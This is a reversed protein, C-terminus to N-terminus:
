KCQRLMAWHRVSTGPIEDEHVVEFGFRQYLSVNNPNHTDLYCPLGERSVGTLYVRVPVSMNVEIVVHRLSYFIYGLYLDFLAIQEASTAKQM